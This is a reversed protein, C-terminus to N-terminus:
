KKTVTYKSTYIKKGNRMITTSTAKTTYNYAKMISKALYLYERHISAPKNIVTFTGANFYLVFDSKLALIKEQLESSADLDYLYFSDNNDSIDLYECLKDFIEKQEKAYKISKKLRGAKMKPIDNNSDLITAIDSM